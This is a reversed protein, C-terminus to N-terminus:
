WTSRTRRSRRPRARGPDTLDPEVPKRQAGRHAPGGARDSRSRGAGVPARVAVTERGATVLDPIIASRRCRRAHAPWALLPRRAAQGRRALGARANAPRQSHRRRSRHAPQGRAEGQGRLDARGCRPQTAVAGLGYVTETAFAVLGGSMLIQAALDLAAPDPNRPTSSSSARLRRRSM